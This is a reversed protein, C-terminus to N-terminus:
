IGYHGGKPLNNNSNILSVTLSNIKVILHLGYPSYPHGNSNLANDRDDKKRTVKDTKTQHQEM